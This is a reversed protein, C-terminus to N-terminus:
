CGRWRAGHRGGLVALDGDGATEERGGGDHEAPGAGGRRLAGGVGHVWAGTMTFTHVSFGVASATSTMGTVTASATAIRRLSPLTLMSRSPARTCFVTRSPM